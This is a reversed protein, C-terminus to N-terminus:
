LTIKKLDSETDVSISDLKTEIVKIKYGNELFRLQELNESKEIMSQKLKSIECLIDKRYAYIGLHKYYRIKSINDRNYPIPYRSFYLATGWRDTIVKVVNRDEIEEKLKILIKLTTIETDKDRLFPTICLKINDPPMLPEDCQINVFIDGPIRNAVYAVRDTGTNINEPTMMCNCNLETLKEYIIKSDTAIILNKLLSCKKARNYVHWVMPKGKIEILPKAKLRTSGYRAPIVGIIEPDPNLNSVHRNIIETTSYGKHYQLIKVEGGYSKVTKYEILKTAEKYDGGKIHVHPKIKQIIEIPTPEDFITVYDVDQLASLIYARVFQNNIPRNEGKIKRTSNDSNVGVILVDGSRKAQQILRIHGYHLIDFIGNTFVIKKNAAKLEQVIKVIETRSKLKSYTKNDM